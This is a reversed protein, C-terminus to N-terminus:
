TIGNRFLVLTNFDIQDNLEPKVQAIFSAELYKRLKYGKSAKMIIKWRFVHDPFSNLHKAPESNNHPNNHENWRISVNRKTEGIYMKNCSCLGEYIVCSPHLNKDKLQFLTKISRTIWSIKVVYKNKTFKQFKKIFHKAKIENLQCFPLKILLFPPPTEEFM